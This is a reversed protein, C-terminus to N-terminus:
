SDSNDSTESKLGVPARDTARRIRAMLEANPLWLNGQRGRSRKVVVAFKAAARHVSTWHWHPHRTARPFCWSLLESVRLPRGSAVLLARRAQRQVRGARNTPIVPM